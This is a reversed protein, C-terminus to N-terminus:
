TATRLTSLFAFRTKEEDFVFALLPGLEPRQTDKGSAKVSYVRGVEAQELQREPNQGFSCVRVYGIRQRQLNDGSTFIGPLFRYGKEARTPLM